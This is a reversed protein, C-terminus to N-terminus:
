LYRRSISYITPVYKKGARQALGIIIINSTNSYLKEAYSKRRNIEDVGARMREKHKSYYIKASHYNNTGYIISLIASETKNFEHAIKRATARISLEPHKLKYEGFKKRIKERM